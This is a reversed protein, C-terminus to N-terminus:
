VYVWKWSKKAKDIPLRALLGSCDGMQKFGKVKHIM